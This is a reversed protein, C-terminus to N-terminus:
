KKKKSTLMCIHKIIMIFPLIWSLIQFFHWFIDEGRSEQYVHKTNRDVVVKGNLSDMEIGTEDVNFIHSPKDLLDSDALVEKLQDFHKNMVSRKSM